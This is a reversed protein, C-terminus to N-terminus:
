GLTTLTPSQHRRRPLRLPGLPGIPGVPGSPGRSAFVVDFAQVPREFLELVQDVLDDEVGIRAVDVLGLQLGRLPGVEGPLATLDGVVQRGEGDPQPAHQVLGGVGGVSRSSGLALGVFPGARVLGTRPVHPVRLGCVRARGGERRSTLAEAVGPVRGRGKVPERVPGDSILSLRDVEGTILRSGRDYTLYAYAWELLVRIRNKFGILFFIHVVLWAAWATFGSLKVHNLRAVGSARGITALTGKDHYHFPELERGKLLRVIADGVYNGEQIAAPAVGPVMEGEQHYSALDGIVFIEEHGPVQLRDNVIVRGARDLEAGLSRGIPSAAVGAAWLITRADLRADGLSVGFQDIDTVRTNTWVSVGMRELQRAAKSSLDPPFTPLIRELGEVLV